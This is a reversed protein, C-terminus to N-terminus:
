QHGRGHHNRLFRIVPVERSAARVMTGAPPPEGFLELDIEDLRSSISLSYFICKEEQNFKHPISNKTLEMSFLEADNNQPYCSRGENTPIEEKSCSLLLTVCIFTLLYKM